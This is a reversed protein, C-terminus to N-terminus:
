IGREGGKGRSFSQRRLELFSDAGSLHYAEFLCQFLGTVLDGGVAIGRRQWGAAGLRLLAAPL